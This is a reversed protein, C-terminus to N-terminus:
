EYDSIDIVQARAKERYWEMEDLPPASQKAEERRILSIANEPCTSVCLGCGICKEEQISMYNDVPEIAKIQCRIDACTGCNKCLNPDIRAFYHSNVTDEM